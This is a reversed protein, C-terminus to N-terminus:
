GVLPQALMNRTGHSEDADVPHQARGCSATGGDHQGLVDHERAREPPPSALHYLLLGSVTLAFAAAYAVGPRAHLLGVGVLVAWFDSTLLSLNMTTASSGHELLWAVLIYFAVLTALYGCELGGLELAAARADVHPRSGDGSHTGNGRLGEWAEALAGRELLATQVVAIAAGYGGLHALYEVRGTVRRLLYEQAVNSAGYLAAGCLVLVDGLWAQPRAPAGPGDTLGGFSAGSGQQALDSAVLAGIGCLCLAAAFLQLYSHRRGFACGSLVIVTPVAFADLICVSTIDTYQYALVLLYNAEVDAAAVLLWYFWPISRPKEAPMSSWHWLAHLSLLLYALASQATPANIYAAIRQSFYGTATLLLSNIQWCLLHLTPVSVLARRM